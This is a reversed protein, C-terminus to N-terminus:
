RNLNLTQIQFLCLSSPPTRIREVWDLFEVVTQDGPHDM